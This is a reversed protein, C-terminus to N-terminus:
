GRNVERLLRQAGEEAVVAMRQCDEVTKAQRMDQQLREACMRYGELRAAQIESRRM